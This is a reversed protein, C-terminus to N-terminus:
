RSFIIKAQMLKNFLKIEKMAIDGLRYAYRALLPRTGIYGPNLGSWWIVRKGSM